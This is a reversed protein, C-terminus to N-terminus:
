IKPLGCLPPSHVPASEGSETLGGVLGRSRSQVNPRYLKFDWDEAESQINIEGDVQEHNELM